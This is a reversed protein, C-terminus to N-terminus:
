DSFSTQSLISLIFEFTNRPKFLEAKVVFTNEEILRYDLMDNVSILIMNVYMIVTNLLQAASAGLDSELLTELYMLIMTLPGRFENKM